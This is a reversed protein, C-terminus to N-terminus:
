EESPRLCMNKLRMACANAIMLVFAAMTSQAKLLIWFQVRYIASFYVKHVVLTRLTEYWDVWLCVRDEKPLKLIDHVYDKLLLRAMYGGMKRPIRKGSKAWVRVMDPISMSMDKLRRSITFNAPVSSTASDMRLRYAYFIADCCLVRQAKVLCENLFVLDEGRAYPRFGTQPVVDRRYVKTSFAWFLGVDCIECSIDLARVEENKEREWNIASVDKFRVLKFCFMQCDRDAEVHAGIQSLSDERLVDDGDLFMVYESAVHRLAENRAASVGQNEQHFVRLRNDGQAYEDLIIGSGDTSGDDVCIAEWEGCTQNKVSDLCERLWPEVNYVPIIISFLPKM